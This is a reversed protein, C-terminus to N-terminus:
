KADPLFIVQCDVGSARERCKCSNGLLTKPLSKVFQWLQLILKTMNKKNQQM